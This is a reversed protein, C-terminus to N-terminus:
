IEWGRESCYFRLNQEDLTFNCCRAILQPYGRGTTIRTYLKQAKDLIETRHANCWTLQNALLAKYAVDAASDGSQVVPNVATISNKHVPIMNNLNIVGYNGNDIKIFDVQNKMSQHKPKPSSLPAYYEAGNVELLIGVFPRNAKKDMNYPVCPDWKRLFDCYATDIVYFSLRAM